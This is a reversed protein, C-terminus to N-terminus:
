ADEGGIVARYNADLATQLTVLAAIRRVSLMFERTEEPKLARGLVSAERYSLWKKLVQYGGITYDWVAAPINKWYTTDNLYVDLTSDDNRILKGRGPMVGQKTSNGWGAKVDYDPTGQTVSLVAIGALDPRVTGATVEVVQKETDLLDVVQRGLVASALLLEKSAPLPIRPYDCQIGDAHERLYAPSYGVALAHLWIMAASEANTDVDTIGFGTLYERALTSLNAQVTVEDTFMSSLTGNTPVTPAASKRLRFPFCVADPSLFHDDSVLRTAFFPTGESDKASKFRSMLFENGDWVQAWLDPRSRNWLPSVSSYYCWRTDFPRLAYRRVHTVTYSEAQRVKTRVKQADFGTANVTLGTKLAELSDWTVAADYYMQMRRELAERDIDILAGGRKEMLGNSPSVASLDTLKPWVQYADSINQPKFAYRCVINPIVRQYQADFDTIKLSNLLDNRKTTGWFDRYLVEPQPQRETKRVMLAISTGVRIGDRNTETSFVSPDPAGANPLGKPIRKGTARSDGNLCDIWLRDFESLFRQRMVVFSPDDLYSFNSIYCVIGRRTDNLEAVCREALRFFRVFLDDLNFKKIGWESILGAKYSDILGDEETPSTGAFANYPPNGIVVLIKHGQKVAGAADRERELGKLVTQKPKGAAPEWDTLANTLYVSAREEKQASLPANWLTLLLGLQLHAVVFPAPLIEFGFIRTLIATRAANAAALDGENARVREYIRRLVAVLYAGTGCCPDLVVVSPDALGDALGLETQLATDVRAVMYEVIESPTYWVGLQKRLDPDFAKLFPEYFYQVAAGTEFTSFFAVRDVRNLAAVTWNLLNELGLPGLREPATLQYFLESIVPVNLQRTDRWLDFQVKPAPKSEHWLVWASFVGYFLTQVLTSRFFHDGEEGTFKIGLSAQLDERIQELAPLTGGRELQLRAERAYSALIWAVDRPDTLAANRRMVRLLYETLLADHQQALARPTTAWFDAETPALRYQEELVPKNDEGRTVLVFQYYNTVLAQGYHAIYRAVQESNAIALVDVSIPKAEIIGHAPKQEMAQNDDMLALDPIGAGSNKPHIVAIVKPKLGDGIQNLLTQLAAYYSTEPVTSGRLAIFINLYNELANM